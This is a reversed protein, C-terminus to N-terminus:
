AAAADISDSLIGAEHGVHTSFGDARLIFKTLKLVQDVHDIFEIRDKFSGPM